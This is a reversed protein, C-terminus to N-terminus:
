DFPNQDKTEDMNAYGDFEAQPIVMVWKYSEPDATKANLSAKAAGSPHGDATSRVFGQHLRRIDYIRGFEGWLEIRRQNIIEERLSGTALDTTAGLDKGTKTCTYAPDRYDM